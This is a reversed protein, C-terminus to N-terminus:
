VLQLELELIRLRSSGAIGGREGVSLISRVRIGFRSLHNLTYRYVHYPYKFAFLARDRWPAYYIGM